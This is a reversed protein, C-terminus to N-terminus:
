NKKKRGDSVETTQYNSSGVNGMDAYQQYKGQTSSYNGYYAEQRNDLFGPYVQNYYNLNDNNVNNVFPNGIVQQQSPHNRVPVRAKEKMPVKYPGVNISNTINNNIVISNSLNNYYSSPASQKNGLASINNGNAVNNSINKGMTTGVNQGQPSESIVEKTLEKHKKERKGKKARGEEPNEVKSSFKSTMTENVLDGGNKEYDKLKPHNILLRNYLKNGFNVSHLRFLNAGILGM